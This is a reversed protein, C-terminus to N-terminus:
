GVMINVHISHVYTMGAGLLALLGFYAMAFLFRKKPEVAFYEKNTSKFQDIIQKIGLILLLVLIPNTYIFFFVVLIPIGLIWFWPSIATVIRGGDLPSVPILNFLNIMFGSYALAMYFDQKTLYHLIMCFLTGISGLLPGGLALKAETEAKDPMENLSIFAGMFPIFLPLSVNLKMFKGVCYHGLEHVFLLLVFGVGYAVGYMGAYIFIMFLMSALSSAFKGLKLVIILSKFKVLLALFTGLAGWVGKKEKWKNIKGATIDPNEDMENDKYDDETPIVDAHSSNDETSKIDLHDKNDEL